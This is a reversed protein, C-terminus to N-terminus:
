SGRHTNTLKGRNTEIKTERDPTHIATQMGAQRDKQKDTPVETLKNTNGETQRNTQRKYTWNSVIVKLWTISPWFVFSSIRKVMINVAKLIKPKILDLIFPAIQRSFM